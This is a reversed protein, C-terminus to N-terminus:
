NSEKVEFQVCGFLAGTILYSELGHDDTVRVVVGVSDPALWEREGMDLARMCEGAGDARDRWRDWSACNRCNGM